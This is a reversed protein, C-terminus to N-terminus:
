PMRYGVASILAFGPAEEEDDDDLCPAINGQSTCYCSGGLALLRPIGSIDQSKIPSNYIGELQRQVQYQHEPQQQFLFYLPVASQLIGYKM